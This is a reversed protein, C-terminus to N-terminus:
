RDRGGSSSGGGDPAVYDAKYAIDVTSGIPVVTCPGPNTGSVKGNESPNEAQQYEFTFSKLGALFMEMKAQRHSMGLVSPM